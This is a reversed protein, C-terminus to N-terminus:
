PAYVPSGLYTRGNEDLLTKLRTAVARVGERCEDLGRWNGAVSWCESCAKSAENVTELELEGRAHLAVLIDVLRNFGISWSAAGGDPNMSTDTVLYSSSLGLCQRLVTQDITGTDKTMRGLVDVVFTGYDSAPKPPPPQM